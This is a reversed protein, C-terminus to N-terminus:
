QETKIFRQLPSMERYELVMNEYKETGKLDLRLNNVLLHADDGPLPEAVCCSLMISFDKESDEQSEDYEVSELEKRLRDLAKVGGRVDTQKLTLIFEGETLRYADDFPRLSKKILDAVRKVTSKVHQTERSSRLDELNNIQVLAVSFPRGQRSLREMEIKLDKYLSLESRLGTESDYGSSKLSIDQQLRRVHNAFAELLTVFADFSEFDPREKSHLASKLLEGAKVDLDSHLAKLREVAESPVLDEKEIGKAWLPFAKPESLAKQTIANEPYFVRKVVQAFWETYEDLILTLEKSQTDLNYELSM